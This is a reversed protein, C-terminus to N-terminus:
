RQAVIQARPVEEVWVEGGRVLGLLDLHSLREMGRGGESGRGRGRSRAAKSVRGSMAVRGSPVLCDCVSHVAQDFSLASVLM